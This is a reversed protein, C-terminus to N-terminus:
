YFQEKRSIRGVLIELFNSCAAVSSDNDAAHIFDLRTLVRDCLLTPKEIKPGGDHIKRKEVPLPLGEM